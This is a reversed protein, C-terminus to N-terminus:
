AIKLSPPSSCLLSLQRQSVPHPTTTTTSPHHQTRKPWDCIWKSTNLLHSWPVALSLLSFQITRISSSFQVFNAVCSQRPLLSAVATIGPACIAPLQRFTVSIKLKQRRSRRWHFHLLVLPPWSPPWPTTTAKPFLHSLFPWPTPDSALPLPCEVGVKWRGWCWRNVIPNGSKSTLKESMKALKRWKEGIKAM